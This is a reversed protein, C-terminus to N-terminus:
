RSRFYPQSAELNGTRLNYFLREVTVQTPLEGPNQIVIHAKRKPSGYIALMDRDSWYVVRDATVSLGEAEDQLVVSGSAQFQQLRDASLRGMRRDTSRRRPAADDMFYVTLVDSTLFTARGQAAGTSEIPLGERIRVLASGSFHKLSVHGEFRTQDTSSNYWMLDEWEILTISPGSDQSAGFLGTQVSAPVTSSKDPKAPHLDEILLTGAGEIQVKSVEPRLNAWLRPGAIRARSVLAGTEPDFESNVVVVHGTALVDTAEKSFRRPQEGRKRERPRRALQKIFDQVGAWDSAPKSVEATQSVEDFTVVLEDSDYTTGRSTAHVNGDFVARNDRGRYSMSDSWTIEVPVPEGVNRGDLGRRSLFTLRGAGPVDARDASMDLSIQRGTVSVTNLSVFAPHDERGVVFAKEIGGGEAITCDMEAADVEVGQVPDKVVVDGFARFRKVRTELRHKSAHERRRARWDIKDVDLGADVAAMYAAVPDFPRAPREVTEFDVVLRDRAQILRKGQHAVVDGRATASRTVPRGEPDVGLAIDMERCTLRDAGYLLVVHGRASVHKLSQRGNLAIGPKRFTLELRDSDLGTEGQRMKVEGTFVAREIIRERRRSIGTELDIATRTVHRAFVELEDSFYVTAHEPTAVARGSGDSELPPAQSLSGPGKVRVSLLDDNQVTYVAMGTITGQGPLTVVVPENPRGALEVSGSEPDYTMRACTASGDPTELRVPSGVAIMSSPAAACRDEHARCPEILFRDAWKLVIRSQPAMSTRDGSQRTDTALSAATARPGRSMERVIELRDAKIQTGGAAGRFRMAWVDGEILGFYRDPAKTPDMEEVAGTRFVPVGANGVVPAAVPQPAAAQRQDLKAQLSVRLWEVLTIRGETPSKATAGDRDTFEIEGPGQMRVSEIRSSSEDFRVELDAAEVSMDRASLVLRGPAILKSYELDFEIEEVRLEILDAPDIKDRIDEPLAARQEETLRDYQILVDGSLTGRLPELGGRPKRQAELTGRQATFRLAHGDQTRMRVDPETFLFEDASGAVPKWDRVALELQARTGERAYLTIHIKEGAGIFTQDVAVANSEPGSIPLEFEGEYVSPLQPTREKAVAPSDEQGFQYILFSVVLISLTASAVLITRVPSVARFQYRETM